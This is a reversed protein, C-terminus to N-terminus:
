NDGTYVNVTNGDGDIEIVPKGNENRTGVYEDLAYGVVTYLTLDGAVSGAQKLLEAGTYNGRSLESVNIGVAIAIEEPHSAYSSVRFVKEKEEKSLTDSAAVARRIAAQKNSKASMYSLPGIVPTTTCGTVLYCLIPLITFLLKRM